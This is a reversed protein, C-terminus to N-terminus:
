VKRVAYDLAFKSLLPTLAYRQVGNQILVNAFLNKSIRVKSYTENLCTKILKFLKM